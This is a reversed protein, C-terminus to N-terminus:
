RHVYLHVQIRANANQFSLAMPEIKGWLQMVLCVAGRAQGDGLNKDPHFRKSLSRYAKKVKCHDDDFTM